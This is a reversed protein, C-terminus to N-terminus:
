SHVIVLSKLGQIRWLLEHLFQFLNSFKKEVKSIINFACMSLSPASETNAALGSNHKISLVTIQLSRAITEGQFDIELRDRRVEDELGYYFTSIYYLFRNEVYRLLWAHGVPDAESLINLKSPLLALDLIAM